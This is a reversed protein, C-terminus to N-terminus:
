KESSSKKPEGPGANGKRHCDMETGAHYHCAMFEKKPGNKKYSISFRIMEEAEWIKMSEIAAEPAVKRVFIDLAAEISKAMEAANYKSTLRSYNGHEAKGEQHCHAHDGHLHCGYSYSRLAAGDTFFVTSVLEEGERVINFGVPEAATKEFETKFDVAYSEASEITVPQWASSALANLPLTVLAAFALANIKM